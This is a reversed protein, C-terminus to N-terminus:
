TFGYLGNFGLRCLRPVSRSCRAPIAAYFLPAFNHTHVIDVKERILLRYLQPWLKLRIGPKKGMVFVQRGVKRIEDGFVGDADLGCASFHYKDRNLRAAFNYIIREVGGHQLSSSIHM